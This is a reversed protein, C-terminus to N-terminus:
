WIIDFVCLYEKPSFISKNFLTVVFSNQDSSIEPPVLEFTRVSAYIRRIGEGMERMYGLERLVRAIFVNRSQHTGRLDRLEAISIQSLLRGPSRVEMKDDFILIEIPKGEISYDRHAVANILAERCAEEPYIISERFLANAQFKTRALHPRLADWASELISVVNKTIMDDEQVNYDHGTGIETGRIRLIRVACRPHWQAIDNAFLLLAARRLKLGDVGFEALDLFQLLKEPSYGPALQEVISEILGIDLDRLTANSIFNRDYERSISEQRDSQIREAPVPRNDRDFRQLCRGDSTLHVVQTSKVVRFYLIKKNNREIIKISPPSLPTQQHVYNIYATKMAELHNSKHPIGTISGDDEVGIFLEGGDANSFSVLADGIDRCIEKLPRAEMIANPKHAYASKFERFHSEGLEIGTLIREELELREVM